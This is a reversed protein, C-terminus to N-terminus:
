LAGAEQFAKELKPFQTAIWDVILEDAKYKELGSEEFFAHIIEHRRIRRKYGEMDSVCSPHTVNFDNNIRIIKGFGDCYGDCDSLKVDEKAAIDQLDYDQGLINLTM